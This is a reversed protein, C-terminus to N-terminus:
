PTVYNARAGPAAAALPQPNDPMNKYMRYLGYCFLATILLLSVGIVTTDEKKQVFIAISTSVMAVNVISILAMCNIIEKRWETPTLNSSDLQRMFYWIGPLLIAACAQFTVGLARLNIEGVGMTLAIGSGLFGLYFFGAVGGAINLCTNNSPEPCCSTCANGCSVCCSSTGCDPPPGNYGTQREMSRQMALNYNHTEARNRANLSDTYQWFSSNTLSPAAPVPAYM